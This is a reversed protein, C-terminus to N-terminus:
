PKQTILKRMIETFDSFAEQISYHFPPSKVAAEPAITHNNNEQDDMPSGDNNSIDTHFIETTTNIATPCNNHDTTKQRIIGNADFKPMNDEDTYRLELYEHPITEGDDVFWEIKKYRGLLSVHYMTMRMKPDCNILASIAGCQRDRAFKINTGDDTTSFVDMSGPHRHWLGLVQLNGKYQLAVVNSLYNVFDTDYEFYSQQHVTNRYGPPINEVVIWAGNDLIYGILIGGTEIPHKDIVETIISNFARQSFIVYHRDM